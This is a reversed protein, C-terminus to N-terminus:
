AGADSRPPTHDGPQGPLLLGVRHDFKRIKREVKARACSRFWHSLPLFESNGIGDVIVLRLREPTDAVAIINHPLLDRTLFLERRLWDKFEAISRELAETMGSPVLAELNEPFRGDWNRFLGTVIGVGQDTDVTGYFRPVHTYDLQGRAKLHRYALYEKRQDDFSRLRKLRRWGTATARRAEPTRDTRLVKVCRTDDEPHVYCRRTGGVAFPKLHQLRLM